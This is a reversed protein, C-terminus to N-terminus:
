PGRFSARRRRPFAPASRWDVHGSGNASTGPSGADPEYFGIRYRSRLRDLATAWFVNLAGRFIEGATAEVIPDVTGQEPLEEIEKHGRPPWAAIERGLIGISGHM